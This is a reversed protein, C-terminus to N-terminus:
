STTYKHILEYCVNFRTDSMRFSKKRHLKFTDKLYTRDASSNLLKFIIGTQNYKKVKEAKNQKTKSCSSYM